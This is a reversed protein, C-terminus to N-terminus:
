CVYHRFLAVTNWVIYPSSFMKFLNDVINNLTIYKYPYKMVFM